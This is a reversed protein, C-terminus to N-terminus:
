NSDESNPLIDAAAAESWYVIHPSYISPQMFNKCRNKHQQKKNMESEEERPVCLLANIIYINCFTNRKNIKFPDNMIEDQAAVGVEHHAHPSSSDSAAAAASIEYRVNLDNETDTDAKRQKVTQRETERKRDLLLHLLSGLLLLTSLTCAGIGM